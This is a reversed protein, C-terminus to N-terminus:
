RFPSGHTARVLPRQLFPLARMWRLFATTSRASGFRAQVARGAAMRLSFTKKWSRVYAAEMGARGTRNQLFPVLCDAALRASRFAISMGNGCLPTVLGGTDGVMLVGDQVAEKKRFSVQSIALPADYLPEGDRFVADLAPNRRLAAEEMAPISGHKKLLAGTALYCACVIGDEVTSIGCYGGEFNHLAILDPPFGPLRLHHKIGVFGDLRAEAGRVFPRELKVDMNSRKGWAGAVARAKFAAGPAAEVRFTDDTERAVATVKCGTRLAAGVAVARDALAADLAFRSIGFGGLPLRMTVGRGAPDTVELRTMRPLDMRELHLGITETLFPWSELSVYEGCVKHRPYDDKELVLVSHGARRLLVALALGGLGGGIVICDWITANEAAPTM